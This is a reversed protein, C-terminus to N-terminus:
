RAGCRRAARSPCVHGPGGGRALACGCQAGQAALMAALTDAPLPLPTRGGLVQGGVARNVPAFLLFHNALPDQRVDAAVEWASIAAYERLTQEAVTQHSRAALQAQYALVGALAHAALVLAFTWRSLATSSM